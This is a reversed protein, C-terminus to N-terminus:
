KCSRRHALFSSWTPRVPAPDFARVPQRLCRWTCPEFTSKAQQIADEIKQRRFEPPRAGGPSDQARQALCGVDGQSGQWNGTHHVDSFDAGFRSEMQTRLETPLPAGRGLLESVAGNWARAHLTGLAKMAVSAGYESSATRRAP